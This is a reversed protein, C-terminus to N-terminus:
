FNKTIAGRSAQNTVATGNVTTNAGNTFTFTANGNNGSVTATQNPNAAPTVTVTIANVPAQQAPQSPQAPDAQNAPDAGAANSPMGTANASDNNFKQLYNEIQQSKTQANANNAGGLGGAQGILKGLNGALGISFYKQIQHQLIQLM